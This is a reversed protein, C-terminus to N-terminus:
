KRIEVSFYNSEIGLLLSPGSIEPGKNNTMEKDTFFIMRKMM